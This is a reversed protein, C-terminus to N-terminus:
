RSLSAPQSGAPHFRHRRRGRLGCTLSVGALVRMAADSVGNKWASPISTEVTSGVLTVLNGVAEGAIRLLASADVQAFPYCPPPTFGSFTGSNSLSPGGLV